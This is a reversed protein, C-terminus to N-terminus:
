VLRGIEQDMFEVMAAYIEMRRANQVRAIGTLKDWEPFYWVRPSNEAEPPMIGLAKM